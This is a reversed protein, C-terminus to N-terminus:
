ASFEKNGGTKKMGITPMVVHFKTGKGEASEFWIKGGSTEVILKTIYLGLGIGNANAKAANDARFFKDFVKDQANKPIGIGEDVVDIQFYRGNQKLAVGVTSRQPKSYHIANNLLILVIQKMLAADVNVPPLVRDPKSFVIRCNKASAYHALESIADSILSTLDTPKPEIKIKKAELRSINLLSNILRAMRDQGREIKFLHQKQEPTLDGAEGNILMETNWKMVTLPTRLQHSAFSIFDTKMQEVEKHKIIDRFIFFTFFISELVVALIAYFTIRRIDLAGKLSESASAEAILTWGNDLCASVAFVEVGKYNKYSASGSEARRCDRTLKNDVSQRLIAGIQFDPTAIILGDRNVLYIGPVGGNRFSGIFESLSDARIYNIIIGLIEGTDKDTIPAFAAITNKDPLRDPKVVDSLVSEGYPLKQALLIYDKEELELLNIGIESELVSAAVRGSLDVVNINYISPDLVQKNDRLHKSLNFVALEDGQAIQKLSDRIFGDSSFDKVRHKASELFSITGSKAVHSLFDLYSITKDHLNNKTTQYVLNGVLAITLAVVFSFLILLKTRIKLKNLM